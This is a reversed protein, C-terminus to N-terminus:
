KQDESDQCIILHWCSTISPLVSFPLLTGDPLSSGGSYMDLDEAFLIFPLSLMTYNLFSLYLGLLASLILPLLPFYHPKHSTEPLPSGSLPYSHSQRCNQLCNNISDYEHTPFAMALQWCSSGLHTFNSIALLPVGTHCRPLALPQARLLTVQHSVGSISCVM